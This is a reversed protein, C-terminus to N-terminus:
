YRRGRQRELVVDFGIQFGWLHRYRLSTPPPAGDQVTPGTVGRVGVIRDTVEWRVQYGKGIVATFGLALTAAGTLRTNTEDPYLEVEVPLGDPNTFRGIMRISSHTSIVGGLGVRAYPSITRRSNIRYIVGAGVLVASGSTESNDINACVATNRSSGTPQTRTCSDRFGLGILQAEGMLGIHDGAFYIGQAGFTLSPRVRRTVTLTDILIPDTFQDDYLPQGLVRWGSTGPIYGANVSLVLRARDATAQASLTGSGAMVIAFFSLLRRSHM